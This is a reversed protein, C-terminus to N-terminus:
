SKVDEEEKIRKGDPGYKHWPMGPSTFFYKHGRDAVHPSRVGGVAIDLPYKQQLARAVKQDKIMMHGSKNFKYQKGDLELSRMKPDHAPMIMWKRGAHRDQAPDYDPRPKRLEPLPM